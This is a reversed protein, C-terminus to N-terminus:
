AGFYSDPLGDEEDMFCEEPALDWLEELVKEPDWNDYDEDPPPMSFQEKMKEASEPNSM